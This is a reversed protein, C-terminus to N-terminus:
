YGDCSLSLYMTDDMVNRVSLGLKRKVGDSSIWLEDYFESYRDNGTWTIGNDVAEARFYVINDTSTLSGGSGDGLYAKEGPQYLYGTTATWDRGPHAATTPTFYIYFRFAHSCKNEVLMKLPRTVVDIDRKANRNATTHIAQQGSAQSSEGSQAPAPMWDSGSDRTQTAERHVPTRVQRASSPIPRSAAAPPAARRQPKPVSQLRSAQTKPDTAKPLPREKSALAPSSALIFVSLAGFSVRAFRKPHVLSLPALEPVLPRKPHATCSLM